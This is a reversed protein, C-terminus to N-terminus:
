VRTWTQGGGRECAICWSAQVSTYRNQFSLLDRIPFGNSRFNQGTVGDLSVSGWLTRHMCTDTRSERTSHNPHIKTTTVFSRYLRARTRMGPHIKKQPLYTHKREKPVSALAREKATHTHTKEKKKKKKKKEREPSFLQKHDSAAHQFASM